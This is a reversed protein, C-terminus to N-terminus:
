QIQAVAVGNPILQPIYARGIFQRMRGSSQVVLDSEKLAHHRQMGVGRQFSNSYREFYQGLTQRLDPPTPGRWTVAFVVGSPSVFEKIVTGSPTQLEHVTFATAALMRKSANMVARDTETSQYNEGLTASAIGPLLM